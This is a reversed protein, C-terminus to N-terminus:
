AQTVLTFNAATTDGKNSYLAGTGAVVDTKLFLAAKAYGGGTPIATGSCMLVLGFPDRMLTTVITLGVTESVGDIQMVTINTAGLGPTAM